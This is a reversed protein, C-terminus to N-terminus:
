KALLDVFQGHKNLIADVQSLISQRQEILKSRADDLEAKKAREDATNKAAEYSAKKDNYTILYETEKKIALDGSDSVKQLDQITQLQLRQLPVEMPAPSRQQSSPFVTSDALNILAEIGKKAGSSAGGTEITLALNAAQKLAMKGVDTYSALLEGPDADFNKLGWNGIDDKVLAMRVQGRGSAYVTNIRSWNADEFFRNIIKVRDKVSLSMTTFPRHQLLGFAPIIGPLFRSFKTADDVNANAWDYFHIAETPDTDALLVSLPLERRDNGDVQKLLADAKARMQNGMESAAAAHSVFAIRIGVDLSQGALLDRTLRNARANLRGALHSIQNLAYKLVAKKAVKDQSIRNITGNSPHHVNDLQDYFEERLYPEVHHLNPPGVWRVPEMHSEQLKKVLTAADAAEHILQDTDIALEKLIHCDFFKIQDYLGESDLRLCWKEPDGLDGWSEREEHVRRRLAEIVDLVLGEKEQEQAQAKAEYEKLFKTLITALSPRKKKIEADDQVKFAELIKTEYEKALEGKATDSPVASYDRGFNNLVQRINEYEGQSRELKMGEFTKSQVMTLTLEKLSVLSEVTEDLQGLLDNWLTQPEKALPGKYVEVEIRMSASGGCNVLTLCALAAVAIGLVDKIRQM